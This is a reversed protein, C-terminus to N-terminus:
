ASRAWTSWANRAPSWSSSTWTIITRGPKMGFLKKVFVTKEPLGDIGPFKFTRTAVGLDPLEMESVLQTQGDVTEFLRPNRMPLGGLDGRAQLRQQVLAEYKTQERALERIEDDHRKRADLKLRRYERAMEACQHCLSLGVARVPPPHSEFSRDHHCSSNSYARRNSDRGLDVRVNLM